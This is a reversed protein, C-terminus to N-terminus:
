EYELEIKEMFTDIDGGTFSIDYSKGDKSHSISINGNSCLELVSVFTAVIESTSKCESYLDNLSVDCLKLRSLIQRSKDKISFVIKKPLVKEIQSKDIERDRTNVVIGKLAVLLDVPDHSYSYEESKKSLLEQPKSYILAGVQYRDKLFGTVSKVSTLTDQAKLQELSEMLIELETVEEDSALLEKTKILLLYSAMQIFESAVELDMKEMEDLFALYQDLIEAIKIDRIEIKNKQLLLLILSLPGEFDVLSDKQKIVNELHFSPNDYM